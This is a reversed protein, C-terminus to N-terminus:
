EEFGEITEEQDLIRVKIGMDKPPGYGEVFDTSFLGRAELQALHEAHDSVTHFDYYSHRFESMFKDDFKKEDLEVEVLQEVIVRYKM